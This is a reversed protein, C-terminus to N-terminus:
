FSEEGGVAFRDCGEYLNGRSCSWWGEAEIVVVRFGSFIPCIFDYVDFTEARCRGERGDGVFM